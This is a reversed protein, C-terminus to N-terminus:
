CREPTLSISTYKPIDFWNFYFIIIRQQVANGLAGFAATSICPFVEGLLSVELVSLRSLSGTKPM